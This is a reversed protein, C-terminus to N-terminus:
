KLDKEILDKLLKLAERSATLSHQANDGNSLILQQKTINIYFIYTRNVILSKGIRIFNLGSQALQHEFMKEIQGLQLTVIRSEGNTLMLNSYNGDSSM